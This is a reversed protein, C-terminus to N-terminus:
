VAEYLGTGGAPTFVGELTIEGIKDAKDVALADVEEEVTDIRDVVGGLLTIIQDLRETIPLLSAPDAFFVPPPEPLPTNL